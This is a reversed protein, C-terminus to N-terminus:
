AAAIMPAAVIRWRLGNMEGERSAKALSSRDFPADLLSRLLVQAAVRGETHAMIRRALSLHPGLAAAFALVLARAVLAELLTFGAESDCLESTGPKRLEHYLAAVESAFKSFCSPVLLKMIRTGSKSKFNRLHGRPLHHLFKLDAPSPDSRSAAPTGTS